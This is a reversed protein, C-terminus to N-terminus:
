PFRSLEPHTAREKSSPPTAQLLGRARAARAHWRSPDGVPGTLERDMRSTDAAARLAILESECERLDGRARNLVGDARAVASRLLAIAADLHFLERESDAGRLPDGERMWAAARERRPELSLLRAVLSDRLASIRGVDQRDRDIQRAIEDLERNTLCDDLTRWFAALAEDVRRSVTEPEFVLVVVIALVFGTLVPGIVPRTHSTTM